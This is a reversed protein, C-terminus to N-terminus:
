GNKVAGGARAVGSAVYKEPTKAHGIWTQKDEGTVADAGLDHVLNDADNIPVTVLTVHREVDFMIQDATGGIVLVARGQMVIRHGLRQFRIRNQQTGDTAGFIVHQIEAYLGFATQQPQALFHVQKGVQAGCM